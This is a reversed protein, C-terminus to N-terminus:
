LELSKFSMSPNSHLDMLFNHVNSKKRGYIKFSISSILIL